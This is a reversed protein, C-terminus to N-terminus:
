LAGTATAWVLRIQKELITLPAGRAYRGALCGYAVAPFVPAPLSKLLPRGDVLATAVLARLRDPGLSQPLRTRGGIERRHAMQSLGYARGASRVPDFGAAGGLAQAAALMLAGATHDAYALVEAEDAFPAADLDGFRAAIMEDLPARDLGRRRVARALALSVPHSRVPGGAYIEDLAERWWTLRIEGMLPDSVLAPVRALVHDFAYLAIVDARAEADAIFRSALWRDPDARRVTDDLDDSVQEPPADAM